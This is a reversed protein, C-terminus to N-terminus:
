SQDRFPLYFHDLRGVEVSGERMMPQRRQAAALDRRELHVDALAAVLGAVVAVHLCARRPGLDHALGHGATHELEEGRAGVHRDDVECTARWLQVRVELLQHALRPREAPVHDVAAVQGHEELRPHLLQRLEERRVLDLHDGAKGAVGRLVDLLLAPGADEFLADVREPAQVREAVPPRVRREHQVEDVVRDAREQRRGLGLELRAVLVLEAAAEPDLEM